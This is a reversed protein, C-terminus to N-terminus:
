KLQKLILFTPYILQPTCAQLQIALYNLSGCKPVVRFGRCKMTVMMLVEFEVLLM